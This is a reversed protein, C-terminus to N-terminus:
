ILSLMGLLKLMNSLAGTRLEVVVEVSSASLSVGM